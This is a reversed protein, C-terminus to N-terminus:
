QFELLANACRIKNQCTRPVDAYNRGDLLWAIYQKCVDADFIFDSKYDTFQNINRFTTRYKAITAKSYGSQELHDILQQTVQKMPKYSRNM